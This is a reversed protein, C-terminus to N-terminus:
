DLRGVQEEIFRRVHAVVAADSAAQAEADAGRLLLSHDGGEVVHLESHIEMSARATELQEPNWLEDEAGQVFLVPATIAHLADDRMAGNRGSLPYGLCVVAGVQEEAAVLCSVRAGLSKGVLVVPRRDEVARLAACHFARLKSLGEVVRGREFPYDFTVVPAISELRETWARMWPHESSVGGGHAFLIVM